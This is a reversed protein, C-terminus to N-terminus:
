FFYILFFYWIVYFHFQDSTFQHHQLYHGYCHFDIVTDEEGNCLIRCLFGPDQSKLPHWNVFFMWGFMCVWITDVCWGSLRALRRAPFNTTGCVFCFLFFQESLAHSVSFFLEFRFWYSQFKKQRTDNGRCHVPSLLFWNGAGSQGNRAQIFKQRWINTGWSLSECMKLLAVLVHGSSLTVADQCPSLCPM